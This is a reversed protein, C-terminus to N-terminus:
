PQEKGQFEGIWCDRLWDDMILVFVLDCCNEVQNVGMIIM